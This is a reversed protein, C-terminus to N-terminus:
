SLCVKRFAEGTATLSLVRKELSSNRRVASAEMLRQCFDQRLLSSYPRADRIKVDKPEHLLQLRILNDIYLPMRSKSKCLRALAGPVINRHIVEVYDGGNMLWLHAMPLLRGEGPFAGLIAIEDTTLQGLLNLFAPHAQDANEQDMTSAILGAIERRLPSYRMAEIAPITIEMSPTCVRHKPVERRELIEEVAAVTFSQVKSMDWIQDSVDNLAIPLDAQKKRPARRPASQLPQARQRGPRTRPKPEEYDM